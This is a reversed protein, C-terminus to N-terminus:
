NEKRSNLFRILSDKFDEILNGSRDAKNHEASVIDALQKVTDDLVDNVLIYDYDDAYDAEEVARTMRGTIEEESNSKRNVLRERLTEPDPTTVFILVADNLIKKIQGAGDVAIELFVNKGEELCKNLFNKPTGYYNGQYETYEILESNKIMEEFKDRSVFHYHVGDEEGDRMPRTTASVSLMNSPYASIFEKMITGKGAGSFGSVVFVIGRDKM